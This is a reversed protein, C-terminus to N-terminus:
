FVVDTVAEQGHDFRAAAGAGDELQYLGAELALEWPEPGAEREAIIVRRGDRLRVRGRGKVFTVVLRPIVGRRGFRSDERLGNVVHAQQGASAVEYELERKLDAAAIGYPSRRLIALLCRTFVGQWLEHDPVEFASRGHETAYAIFTRTPCRRTRPELTITPPLGIAREATTRCCDLSIVIEEFLGIGGLTGRYQDTSLALRALNRSWRALLLAVDDGAEDPSGAGHGSFHFYLRRGGGLADAAIMLELLQEDIEVQMPSAPDARSVVLRAHERAVGGGDGDCLWAHLKEADSVAGRLSRFQPYHDVGVVLGFDIERPREQGAAVPVVDRAARTAVFAQTSTVL